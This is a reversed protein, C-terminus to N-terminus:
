RELALNEVPAPEFGLGLRPDRHEIEDFAEVIRAAAVRRDPIEGRDVVLTPVRDIGACVLRGDHERGDLVLGGPPVRAPGDKVAAARSPRVMTRAILSRFFPEALPRVISHGSVPPCFAM